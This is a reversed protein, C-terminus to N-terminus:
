NGEIFPNEKVKYNIKKLSDLIRLGRPDHKSAERLSDAVRLLLDDPGPRFLKVSGLNWGDSLLIAEKVRLVFTDQGRFVFGEADLKFYPRYNNVYNNFDVTDFRINQLGFKQVSDVLGRYMMLVSDKMRNYHDNDSMLIEEYDKMSQRLDKYLKLTQRLKAPTETRELFYSSDRDLAAKILGNCFITPTM